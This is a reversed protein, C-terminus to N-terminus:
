CKTYVKLTEENSSVWDQYTDVDLILTGVHLNVLRDGTEEDRGFEAASVVLEHEKYEDIKKNEKEVM